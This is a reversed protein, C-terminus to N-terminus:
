LSSCVADLARSCGELLGFAARAAPSANALAGSDDRKSPCFSAAVASRVDVGLFKSLNTANAYADPYPACFLFRPDLRRLQAELRRCSRTLTAIREATFGNYPDRVIDRPRRTALIVRFDFGAAETAAALWSLDPDWTSPPTGCPYSCSPLHLLVDGQTRALDARLAKALKADDACDHRTVDIADDTTTTTAPMFDRRHRPPHSGNEVDYADYANRWPGPQKFVGDHWLHHGTHELGAVYAVRGRAGAAFRTKEIRQRGNYYTSACPIAAGVDERARQSGPRRLDANAARLLAYFALHLSSPCGTYRRM